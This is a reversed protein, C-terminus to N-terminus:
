AIQDTGHRRQTSHGAWGDVWRNSGHNLSLCRSSRDLGRSGFNLHNLRCRSRNLWSAWSLRETCATAVATSARPEVSARLRVHLATSALRHGATRIAADAGRTLRQVAYDRCLCGYILIFHNVFGM